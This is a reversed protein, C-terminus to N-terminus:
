SELLDQLLSLEGDIDSPRIGERELKAVLAARLRDVVQRHTGSASTLPVGTIACAEAYTKGQITHLRFLEWWSAHGDSELEARIQEHAETVTRVAWRRELALLADTEHDSPRLRSTRDLEDISVTEQRTGRRRAALACNRSHILLGNALWHRLALDSSTWRLLYSSDALRAAFFANVLEAPEGLARLNASARAYACLPEFYRTMVHARAAVADDDIRHRLWISQTTPFADAM